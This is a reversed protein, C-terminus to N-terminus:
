FISKKALFILIRGLVKIFKFHFSLGRIAFSWSSGFLSRGFSNYARWNLPSGQFSFLTSLRLRVFYDTSAKQRIAADTCVRTPFGARRARIQFETDGYLHPCNEEDFGGVAVLAARPILLCCGNSTEVIQNKSATALHRVRLFWGDYVTGAFSGSETWQIPSIISDPHNRHVAIMAPILCSDFEVDDNMVIFIDVNQQLAVEIGRNVASSWWANAGAHVAIVNPEMRVFDLTGDSSESDCVIIKLPISQSNMGRIFQLTIDKRNFTPVVVAVNLYGWSKSNGM